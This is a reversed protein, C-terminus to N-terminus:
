LCDIASLHGHLRNEKQMLINTQTAMNIPGHITERKSPKLLMFMPARINTKQLHPPHWKTVNIIQYGKPIQSAGTRINVKNNTKNGLVPLCGMLAM